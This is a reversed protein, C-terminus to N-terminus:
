ASLALLAQRDCIRMRRYSTLSIVREAQLHSIMRSVTELSLGLYDAIDQRTVMLDITERSTRAALDGLFAAVREIASRHGMRAVHAQLARMRALGAARLAESVAIDTSALADLASRRIEILTCASMAEASFMHAPGDELAFLDGDFHFDAVQRRGGENIRYRRVAGKKLAYLSVAPDGQSFIIAGARVSRSRGIVSIARDLATPGVVSASVSRSIM